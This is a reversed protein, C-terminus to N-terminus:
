PRHHKINSFRHNNRMSNRRVNQKAQESQTQWFQTFQINNFNYNLSLQSSRIGGVIWAKALNWAEGVLSVSHKNKENINLPNVAWEHIEFNNYKANPNQFHWANPHYRYIFDLPQEDIQNSVSPFLYKLYQTIESIMANNSNKNTQSVMTNWYEACYGDTYIVTARGIETNM